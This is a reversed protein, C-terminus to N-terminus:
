AIPPLPLQLHSLDGQGNGALELAYFRPSHFAFFCVRRLNGSIHDAMKSKIFNENKTAMRKLRM